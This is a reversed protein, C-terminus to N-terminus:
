TAATRLTLQQGQSRKASLQEADAEQERYGLDRSLEAAINVTLRGVRSVAEKTIRFTPGAVGIAAIALGTCDRVPAGVCRLGEEFEENDLAYGRERIRQLDLRLTHLSTITHRTHGRLPHKTIVNEVERDDLLALVAKGVSTCYMPVRRGVTSPTRVKRPSEVNAVSLMESEHFICLHATEGTEEVLRELYPRSLQAVDRNARAKWGLEFLRLGLQYKGSSSDREVFRNRELVMLLRHVTTKHLDLHESIDALSLKPGRECLVDLVGVARDIM